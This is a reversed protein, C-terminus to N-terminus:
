PRNPLQLLQVAPAAEQPIEEPGTTTLPHKTQPPMLLLLLVQMVFILFLMMLLLLLLLLPVVQLLLVVLSRDTHRWHCVLAARLAPEYYKSQLTKKEKGM